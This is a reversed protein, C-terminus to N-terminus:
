VLPQVKGGFRRARVIPGLSPREAKLDLRLPRRPPLCIGRGQTVRPGQRLHVEVCWLAGSNPDNSGRLPFHGQRRASGRLHNVPTQCRVSDWFAIVLTGEAQIYMLPRKITMVGEKTNRSFPNYRRAGVGRCGWALRAMEIRYLWTLTESTLQASETTHPRYGSHSDGARDSLMPALPTQAGSIFAQRYVQEPGMIFNDRFGPEPSLPARGVGVRSACEGLPPRSSQVCSGMSAFGKDVIRRDDEM